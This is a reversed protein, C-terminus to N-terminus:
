HVVIFDSYIGNQNKKEFVPKPHTVEDYNMLGFSCCPYRTISYEPLYTYQGIVAMMQKFIIFLFVSIILIVDISVVFFMEISYVNCKM